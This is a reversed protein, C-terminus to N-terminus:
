RPLRALAVDAPDMGRAMVVLEVGDHERRAGWCDPLAAFSFEVPEGDVTFTRPEEQARLALRRQARHQHRSRVVRGPISRPEAGEAPVFRTLHAVLESSAYPPRRAAPDIAASSVSLGRAVLEISTVPGERPDDARTRSVRMPRDAAGYVAFAVRALAEALDGERTAKRPRSVRRRQEGFPGLSPPMATGGVVFGCRECGILVGAEIAVQTWAVADCVPCPDTADPVPFTEGAPLVSVVTGQEDRYRVLGEDHAVAGAVVRWSTGQIEAEWEDGAADIVTVSTAGSPVDGTVALRGDIMQSSPTRV